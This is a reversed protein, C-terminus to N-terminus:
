LLALASLRCLEAAAKQLIVATLETDNLNALWRNLRTRVNHHFTLLIDDEDSSWGIVVAGGKEIWHEIDVLRVARHRSQCASLTDPIIKPQSLSGAWNEEHVSFRLSGLVRFKADKQLIRIWVYALLYKM